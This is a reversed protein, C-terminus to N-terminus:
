ASISYHRDDTLIGLYPSSMSWCDCVRFPPLRWKISVLKHQDAPQELGSNQESSSMNREENMGNFSDTPQLLGIFVGHIKSSCNVLAEAFPM